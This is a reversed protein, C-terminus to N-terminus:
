RESVRKVSIKKLKPSPSPVTPQTDPKSPSPVQSQLQNQKQTNTPVESIEFALPPTHRKSNHESNSDELNLTKNNNIAVKQRSKPPNYYGTQKLKSEGKRNNIRPAFEKQEKFSKSHIELVDYNKLMM